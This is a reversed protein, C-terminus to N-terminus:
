SASRLAQLLLQFGVTAAAESEHQSAHRTWLASRLPGLIHMASKTLVLEATSSLCAEWLEELEHIDLLTSARELLQDVTEPTIDSGQHSGRWKNLVYNSWGAECGWSLLKGAAELHGPNTGPAAIDDVGSALLLLHGTVAAASLIIGLDLGVAQLSQLFEAAATEASTSHLRQKQQQQQMRGCGWSSLDQLVPMLAQLSRVPLGAAATSSQQLASREASIAQAKTQQVAVAAPLTSLLQQLVLCATGLRADTEALVDASSSGASQAAMTLQVIFDALASLCRGDDQLMVDVWQLQRASSSHTWSLLAPLLFSVGSVLPEGPVQVALLRPLLKRVLDQHVDPADALFRGLVRVAGVTLLPNVAATGPHTTAFQLFELLVQILFACM